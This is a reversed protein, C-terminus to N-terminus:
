NLSISISRKSFTGEIVWQGNSMKWIVYLDSTVQALINWQLTTDKTVGQLASWQATLDSNVSTLLSWPMNLDQFVGELMNWVTSLDREVGQLMNWQMNIDSTVGALMDFLLSLDSTATLNLDFATSLASENGDYDVSSIQLSNLGVNTTIGDRSEDPTYISTVYAGNNYLNSYEYDADAPKAFTIGYVLPSSSTDSFAAALNTPVAPPTTNVAQTTRLLATSLSSENGVDDVTKYTFSYETSPDLGTFQYPLIGVTTEEVGDKFLIVRTGAPVTGNVDVRSSSRVTASFDGLLAPASNDVTDTSLTAIKHLRLSGDTRTEHFVFNYGGQQVETYTFSDILTQVQTTLDIIYVSWLHAADIGSKLIYRHSPTFTYSVAKILSNMDNVRRSFQVSNAGVRAIAYLGNAGTKDARILVAFRNDANPTFEALLTHNVTGTPWGARDGAAGFQGGTGDSLINLSTGAFVKAGGHSNLDSTHSVFATNSSEGDLQDVFNITSTDYASEAPGSGTPRTYSANTTLLVKDVLTGDERMWMNLTHRGASPVTISLVAASTNLNSWQLSYDYDIVSAAEANADPTGNFGFHVSDSNGSIGGDQLRFWIYHTGSTVFDIEFDLRPSVSPSYSSTNNTGADPLAKMAHLNSYAADTVKDWTHGSSDAPVNRSYHEAEIVVLKDSGSDQKFVIDQGSALSTNVVNVTYTSTATYTGDTVTVTATDIGYFDTAPTYELLLSGTKVAWTSGHGGTDVVSVISTAGDDNALPNLETLGSNMDVTYTDDNATIPTPTADSPVAGKDPKTNGAPMMADLNVPDSTSFTINSDVTLTGTNDANRTMATVTLGTNSGVRIVSRMENIWGHGDCFYGVNDVPVQNTNSGGSTCYTLDVGSDLLPDGAQLKFHTKETPPNTSWNPTLFTNSFVNSPYTSQITALDYVGGSIQMRVTSNDSRRFNNGAIQMGLWEDGFFEIWRNKQIDWNNSWDVKIEDLINNKSCQKYPFWSPYSNPEAAYDLAVGLNKYGSNHAFCNYGHVPETTQWTQTAFPGAVDRFFCRIVANYRGGLKMAGVYRNDYSAGMGDFFCDFMYVNNCYFWSANNLAPGRNGVKDGTHVYGSGRYAPMDPGTYTYYQNKLRVGNFLVYSADITLLDHGANAIHGGKFYWHHSNPPLTGWTGLDQNGPDTAPITGTSEYYGFWSGCDEWYPNEVTVYSSTDNYFDRSHLAGTWQDAHVIVINKLQVRTINQYSIVKTVKQSNYSAQGDATLGDVIADSLGTGLYILEQKKTSPIIAPTQGYAARYIIENGIAGSSGITIKTLYYGATDYFDVTDGPSLANALSAEYTAHSMLNSADAGSGSGTSTAGVHYGIM